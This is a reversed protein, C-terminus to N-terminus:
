VFHRIDESLVGISTHVNCAVRIAGPIGAVVLTERLAASLGDGQGDATIILADRKGSTYYASAAHSFHHDLWHIRIGGLGMEAVWRRIRRRRIWNFYYAYLFSLPGWKQWRRVFFLM